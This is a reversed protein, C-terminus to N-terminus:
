GLLSEKKDLDGLYEILARRRDRPLEDLYAKVLADRREPSMKGIAAEAYDESKRMESTLNAIARALNTVESIMVRPQKSEALEIQQELLDLTRAQVDTFRSM